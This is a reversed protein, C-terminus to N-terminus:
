GTQQNHYDLSDRPRDAECVIFKPLICHHFSVHDLIAVIVATLPDPFPVGLVGFGRLFGNVLASVIVGAREPILVVDLDLM